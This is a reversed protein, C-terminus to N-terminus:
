EAPSVPGSSPDERPQHTKLQANLQDRWKYLEVLMQRRTEESLAAAAEQLSRGHEQLYGDLSDRVESPSAEGRGAAILTERVVALDAGAGEIRERQWADPEHEPGTM